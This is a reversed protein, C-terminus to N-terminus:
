IIGCKQIVGSAWELLERSAAAFLDENAADDTLAIAKLIRRDMASVHEALRNMSAIYDGTEQFHKMRVTFRAAKYLGVLVERDRAHLFNHSCAHYLNGAGTLVARRIDEGSFLPRLYELSGIIPKTDWVLQLLDSREWGRLEREGAVFGCILECRDMSDLLKRYAQLDDFCVEDLIIVVDIDSTTTQEGRGYSGQLGFFRLRTGFLQILKEQFQELWSNLDFVQGM